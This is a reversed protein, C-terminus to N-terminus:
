NKELLSIITQLHENTFPKVFFDKVAPFSTAREKDKEQSSSTFMLIILSDNIEQQLASFEELFEFGNKRPMNIDLLIAVPPFNGDFKKKSEEYNSFHDLAEQGDCFSYVHEVLGSKKAVRTVQYVDVENDDVVCLSKIM